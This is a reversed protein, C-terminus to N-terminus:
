NYVDSDIVELHDFAEINKIETQFFSEAPAIYGLRVLEDNLENISDKVIKKYLFHQDHDEPVSIIDISIEDPKKSNKELILNVNKKNLAEIFFNAGLFIFLLFFNTIKKQYSM